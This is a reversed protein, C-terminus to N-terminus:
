KKGATLKGLRYSDFIGVVWCIVIMWSAIMSILTDPGLNILKEISQTEPDVQGSLIRDVLSNVQDMLGRALLDHVVLVLGLAALGFLALGRGYCRLYFHGAGPFALASWLVAKEPRGM